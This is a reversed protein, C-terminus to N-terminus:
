ELDCYRDVCVGEVMDCATSCERSNACPAGPAKLPQCTPEGSADDCFLRPQCMQEGSEGPECGSGLEGNGLWACRGDVCDLGASRDCILAPYEEQEDCAADPESVIEISQCVREGDPGRCLAGSECVDGGSSCPQGLPIPNECVMAPSCWQSCACLVLEGDSQQGCAEGLGANERVVLAACVAPTLSWDCFVEGGSPDCAADSGCPEGLPVRPACTGPCSWTDSECYANGACDEHRYCAGGEQVTGTYVANCSETTSARSSDEMQALCAAGASPDFVIRGADLAEQLDRDPASRALASAVGAECGAVTGYVLRAALRDGSPIPCEMIRECALRTRQELFAAHTSIGGSGGTSSGGSGGTSSGGSGGTSSASGTEPDGCAFGGAAAMVM